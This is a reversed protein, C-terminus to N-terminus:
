RNVPVPLAVTEGPRVQIKEPSFTSGLWVTLASQNYVYCSDVTFVLQRYATIYRAIEGNDAYWVGDQGAMRAIFKEIREWNDNQDFEYSHGWLYFLRAPGDPSFIMADGLFREALEFLAEDDHHCTPHWSLLDKPLMFHGTSNITRAYILGCRRAARVINEDDAGFAYAYGTVPMETIQELERRSTLIEEMCRAPDMGWLTLHYQGHAALEHGRYFQKLQSATLKDHSVAKKGAAVTGTEGFLGPNVNFTAKVNYRNLIELLRIDQSVGDDYSLTFARVKGGPWLLRDFLHRSM